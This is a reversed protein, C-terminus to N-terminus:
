RKKLIIPLFVGSSQVGDPMGDGDSDTDLYDPVYDPNASSADCNAYTVTDTSVLSVVSQSIASCSSVPMETADPLTDCDSDQEARDPTVFNSGLQWGNYRVQRKASLLSVYMLQLRNAALHNGTGFNGFLIKPHLKSINQTNDLEKESYGYFDTANTVQGTVDTSLIPTGTWAGSGKKYSYMVDTRQTQLPSIQHWAVHIVDVGGDQHITMDPHLGDSLENLTSGSTHPFGSLADVSTPGTLNSAISNSPIYRYNGETSQDPSWTTGGDASTAYGLYFITTDSDDTLQWGLAVSNGLVAITPFNPEILNNATSFVSTAQPTLAGAIPSVGDMVARSIDMKWYSIREPATNGYSDIVNNTDEAYAVHMTNGNVALAVSREAESSRGFATKDQFQIFATDTVARKYGYSLWSQPTASSDFEEYLVVVDGSANVAIQPNRRVKQRASAATSVLQSSGCTGGLTCKIYRIEQYYSGSVSVEREYAIHVTNSVIPDFVLVPNQNTDTSDIVGSSGTTLLWSRTTTLARSYALKIKGQGPTTGGAVNESWVIATYYHDTDQSTAMDPWSADASGGVVNNGCNPLAAPAALGVSSSFIHPAFLIGAVVFTPLVKLLKWM